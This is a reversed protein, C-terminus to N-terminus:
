ATRSIPSDSPVAPTLAVNSGEWYLISAFALSLPMADSTDFERPTATDDPDRCGPLGAGEVYAVVDDFEICIEATNNQSM